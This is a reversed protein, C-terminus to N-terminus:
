LLVGCFGAGSILVEERQPFVGVWINGDQLLRLSFVSLQFLATILTGCLSVLASSSALFSLRVLRLTPRLETAVPELLSLLVVRSKATRRSTFTIHSGNCCGTKCCLVSDDSKALHSCNM